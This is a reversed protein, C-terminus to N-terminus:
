GTLQVSHVERTKLVGRLVGRLVGQGQGGGECGHAPALAVLMYLVVLLWVVEAASHAVGAHV